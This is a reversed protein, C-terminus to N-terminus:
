DGIQKSQQKAIKRFKARSQKKLKNKEKRSLSYARQLNYKNAKNTGM